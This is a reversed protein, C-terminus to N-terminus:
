NKNYCIPLITIIILYLREKLNLVKLYKLNKFTKFKILERRADKLPLAHIFTYFLILYNLSFFNRLKILNINFTTELKTITENLVFLHIYLSSSSLKYKNEFNVNYNSYIYGIKSCLSINKCFCIYNYIFITDEGRILLENFYIKNDRIIKRKLIKCWPTVMYLKRCDTILWESIKVRNNIIENKTPTDITSCEGFTQVGCIELDFNYTFNQLFDNLIYDDSDVFTIWEGQAIDLGKNRASSVGGNAKHIVVVRSDKKAYDDCIKKSEDISGDNILILEFNTFTQALVSDVCRHLTKEANYVPIIVSVKPM